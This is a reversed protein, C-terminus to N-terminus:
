SNNHADIAKNKCTPCGGKSSLSFAVTKNIRAQCKPDDNSKSNLLEGIPWSSGVYNCQIRLCSNCLDSSRLKM